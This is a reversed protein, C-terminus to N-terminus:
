KRARAIRKRYADGFKVSEKFMDHGKMVNLLNERHSQIQEPPVGDYWNQFDAAGLSKINVGKAHKASADDNAYVKKTIIRFIEGNAEQKWAGYRTPSIDLKHTVDESFMVGDTDAYLWAAPNVLIARRLVMRVHATIFAGLHPQHYDKALPESFKFWLHAFLDDEDQYFSYGDPCERAMVIELGDLTEVTKGYSNNGVAKIMEGQASKPDNGNGVRLTELKDVYSKMRFHDTWFYAQATKIQWGEKQLQSLEASTVWCSELAQCDFRAKGDLDRWYFPVINGRKPARADILFIQAKAHAHGQKTGIAKGAPLWCDRMAAAYAQNIDYKWVPGYFQGQCHCYGGRMVYRQVIEQVDPVLPWIVIERPIHSSFIKIGANGITPQLGIHFNDALISEAKQLGYWLGVSDRLAYDCHAKNNPNFEEISFDPGDLKQYEPAFVKLFDKLSRQIGTMSMGDLFEWAIEQPPKEALRKGERKAAFLEEREDYNARDLIKVGRVKKSKTLYPRIIYADSHLVAACVFYVDYNNANWGVFRAGSFEAILFRAELIQLLHSLSKVPLAYQVGETESFATIYLPQPTHSKRGKLDFSTTELDYAITMKLRAKSRPKCSLPRRKKERPPGVFVAPKFGTRLKTSPPM